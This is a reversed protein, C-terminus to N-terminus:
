VPPKAKKRPTKLATAIQEAGRRNFGEKKHFREDVALSKIRPLLKELIEYLAELESLTPQRDLLDNSVHNGGIDAAFVDAWTKGWARQAFQDNVRQHARQIRQAIDNSLGNYSPERFGVEALSARLMKGCKTAHLQGLNVAGGTIERISRRGAELAVPGVSENTREITKDAGFDKLGVCELFDAVVGVKRIREDYPRILREVKKEDLVDLLSTASKVPLKALRDKIFEKFPVDIRYTKVLQSYQSNLLQPTNRVYFIFKVRFGAGSLFDFIQSANRNMLTEILESSLLINDCNSRAVEELFAEVIEEHWTRVPM